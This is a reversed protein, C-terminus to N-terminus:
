HPKSRCKTACQTSRFHDQEVRSFHRVLRLNKLTSRAEIEFNRVSRVGSALPFIKASIQFIDSPVERRDVSEFITKWLKWEEGDGVLFSGASFGRFMGSRNPSGVGCLFEASVARVIIEYRRVPIGEFNRAFRM